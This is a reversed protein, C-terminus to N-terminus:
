IFSLHLGLKERFDQAFRVFDPNLNLKRITPFVTPPTELGAEMKLAGSAVSPYAMGQMRVPHDPHADLLVFSHVDWFLPM